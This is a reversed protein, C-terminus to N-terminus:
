LMTTEPWVSKTKVLGHPRYSVADAFSFEPPTFGLDDFGRTEIVIVADLIDVPDVARRPLQLQGAPNGVLLRPGHLLEVRQRLLFPDDPMDADLAPIVDPLPGAHIQPVEELPDARVELRLFYTAKRQASSSLPLMSM